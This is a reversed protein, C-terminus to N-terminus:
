SVFILLLLILSSNNQSIKITKWKQSQYLLQRSRLVLWPPSWALPSPPPSSLSWSCRWGPLRTGRSRATALHEIVCNFISSAFTSDLILLRVHLGHGISVPLQARTVGVVVMVVSVGPLVGPSRVSLLSCPSNDLPVIKCFFLLKNKFSEPRGKTSKKWNHVLPLLTGNCLSVM